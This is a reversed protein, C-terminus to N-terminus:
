RPTADPATEVVALPKKKGISQLSAKFALFEPSNPDPKWDALEDEERQHELQEEWTPPLFDKATFGEDNRESRPVAINWLEACIMAAGVDRRRDREELRIELYRFAAPKM